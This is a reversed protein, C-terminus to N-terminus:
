AVAPSGVSANNLQQVSQNGTGIALVNVSTQRAFNTQKPAFFLVLNLGAGVADLEADNLQTLTTETM